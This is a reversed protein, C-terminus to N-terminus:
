PGPETPVLVLDHRRSEEFLGIIKILEEHQQAVIGYEPVIWFTGKKDADALTLDAQFHILIRHALFEGLPTTISQDDVYTLTRTAKGQERQISQNEADFVRMGAESTFPEGSRLVPPATPLPPAFRTLANKQHDIVATLLFIGEENVTWYETRDDGMKLMYTADHDSTVSGIFVLQQSEQDPDIRQYVWTKEIMPYLLEGRLPTSAPRTDTIFFQDNVTIIDRASPASCGSLLFTWLLCVSILHRLLPM